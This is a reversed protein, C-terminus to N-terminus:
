APFNTAKISDGGQLQIFREGGEECAEILKVVGRRQRLCVGPSALQYHCSPTGAQGEFGRGFCLLM